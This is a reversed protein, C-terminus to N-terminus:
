LGRMGTARPALEADLLFLFVDACASQMLKSSGMRARGNCSLMGDIISPILCRHGM